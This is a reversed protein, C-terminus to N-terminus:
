PCSIRPCLEVRNRNPVRTGPPAVSAQLPLLCCEVSESSVSSQGRLTKKIILSRKQTYQLKVLSVFEAQRYSANLEESVCIKKTAVLVARSRGVLHNETHIDSQQFEVDLFRTIALQGHGYQNYGEDKKAYRLENTLACACITPHVVCLAPNKRLREAARELRREQMGAQLAYKSVQALDLKLAKSGYVKRTHARSSLNSYVLTGYYSETGEAKQFKRAAWM